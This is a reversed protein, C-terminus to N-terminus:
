NSIECLRYVGETRDFAIIHRELLEKVLKGISAHAKGHAAHSGCVFRNEARNDSKVLNVHHVIEGPLLPRSLEEEALVRHRDRGSGSIREYGTSAIYPQAPKRFAAIAIGLRETREYITSHSRGLHRAINAMREKGVHDRLYQDESESFRRTRRNPSRLGLSNARSVVSAPSRGLRRAIDTCRLFGLNSRLFRDESPAFRRTTRM